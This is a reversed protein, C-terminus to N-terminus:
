LKVVVIESTPPVEQVAFTYDSSQLVRKIGTRRNASRQMIRTIRTRDFETLSELKFRTDTRMDYDILKKAERKITM